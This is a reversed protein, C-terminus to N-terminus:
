IKPSFDCIGLLKNETNKKVKDAETNEIKEGINKEIGSIPHKEKLRIMSKKENRILENEAPIVFVKVITKSTGKAREAPKKIERGFRPISLYHKESIYHLTYTKSFVWYM